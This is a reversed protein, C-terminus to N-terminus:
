GAKYASVQVDIDINGDSYFKIGTVQTTAQLGTMGIYCRWNGDADMGKSNSSLYGVTYRDNEYPNALSFTGHANDNADGFFGFYTLLNTNDQRSTEIGTNVFIKRFQGSDYNSASIETNTNDLFRAYLYTASSSSSRKAVYKVDYLTYDTTFCDTISLSTVSTASENAISLYYDSM